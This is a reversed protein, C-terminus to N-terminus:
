AGTTRVTPQKEALMTRIASLIREVPARRYDWQEDPEPLYVIMPANAEFLLIEGKANVSFDAGAYDLGLADRIRELAAMARHGLAEPMNNLFADEEALHEPHGAMEATAYHIKWHHAIAAHLPYLEGGVMMVRYKRIKGGAGRADLFQMVTIDRGPLADLAATPDSANEIRFFNQGNHFGPARLLFPLTFGRGALSALADPATLVTRPLSIMAPTIVGPVQGLRLANAIRGTKLVAEPHNLVPAQTQAALKVAAELAPQCLDADGIANIMLRHPPLSLAPDFFETVIVTVLYIRDDLFPLIPINGGMASVLLLAPVPQSRGRYPLAVVSRNQFGIRRHREAAEWDGLEWLLQAFGQHAQPHDPAARLAQEFHERALAREEEKLLANALNVHAIPNDPHRAAAEAYCARAATRYGTSYLLAGFDNLAGFHSPSLALLDFYARRAEETRGLETLLRARDFLLEVAHPKVSLKADMEKLAAERLLWPQWNGPTETKKASRKVGIGEFRFDM